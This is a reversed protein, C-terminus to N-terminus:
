GSSDGSSHAPVRVHEPRVGVGIARAPFRRLWPWRDILKVPWAPTLPHNSSLVRNIVREHILVQAGQTVRTPFLRRRQVAALHENTLKKERLPIALINGAAVADQVALNIGVGGVPSMAHAADGICLLGPRWWRRLRDVKVTLLNIDDWSRVEELRDRFLPAVRAIENRLVEVGQRRLEEIEGKRIVFACQWYDGRDLTVFVRGADMYGLAQTPDDNRRSLRLWVVDIPSGLDEVELGAAARVTSHRGDSGIVLDAEVELPGYPTQAKVGTIRGSSELLGTVQTEMLLRFQPYRGGRDAMFNLFDWQPM